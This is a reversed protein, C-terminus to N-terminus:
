PSINHVHSAYNKDVHPQEPAPFKLTNRSSNLISLRHFRKKGKSKNPQLSNKESSAFLRSPVMVVQDSIYHQFPFRYKLDITFLLSIPSHGYGQLSKALQCTSTNITYTRAGRTTLDLDLDRWRLKYKIGLQTAYCIKTIM